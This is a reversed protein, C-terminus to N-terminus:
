KHGTGHLLIYGMVQEMLHREPPKIRTGQDKIRSGQDEGWGHMWALVGDTGGSTKRPPPQTYIPSQKYSNTPLMSQQPWKSPFFSFKQPKTVLIPNTQSLVSGPHFHRTECIFTFNKRWGKEGSNFLSPPCHCVDQLLTHRPETCHQVWWCDRSSSYPLSSSAPGWDITCDAASVERAAVRGGGLVGSLQDPQLRTPPLSLHSLVTLHPSLLTWFLSLPHFPLRTFLQWFVPLRSSPPQM